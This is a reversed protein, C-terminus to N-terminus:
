RWELRVEIRDPVEHTAAELESIDPIKLYAKESERVGSSAVYNQIVYDGSFGLKDLEHVIATIDASSLLSGTFTTRPWFEVESSILLNMSKLVNFWPN